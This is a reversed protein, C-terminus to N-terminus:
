KPEERLSPMPFDRLVAVLDDQRGLQTLLKEEKAKWGRLAEKEGKSLYQEEKGVVDSREAKDIVAQVKEKEFRTRQLLRAMAKYTDTLVLKRAIDPDFSFLQVVSGSNYRTGKPMDSNILFGAEKLAGLSQLIGKISVMALTAIQKVDMAGNTHLIRVIRVGLRGFRAQITKELETQVLIRTLRRFNVKFEQGRHWEAFQRPDKGLMRVHREVLARRETTEITARTDEADEDVGIGSDSKFDQEDKPSGGKLGTNPPDDDPLGSTLDVSPDLVAMIQSITVSPAATWESMEDEYEEFDDYLRPLQEELQRLLAEYVKSTTDGIYRSALDVLQQNRLVVNVKDYNIVLVVDGNLRGKFDDISDGHIGNVGNAFKDSLKQRKNSHITLSGGSLKTTGFTSKTSSPDHEDRWKRKLNWVDEEFEQKQKGKLDGKPYKPDARVVLQAEFHIDAPPYFDRKFLPKIYGSQLLQDLVAHLHGLTNIYNESKYTADTGNSLGETNMQYAGTQIHSQTKSAVGYADELDSVQAHGLLLLNSIVGGASEGFRDEVLKIIKGSRVLAYAHDLDAQYYTVGEYTYHLILHQQILVVLGHKLHRRSLGSHQLLAPISLRGHRVLSSFVCQCSRKLL